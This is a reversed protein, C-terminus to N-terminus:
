SLKPTAQLTKFSINRFLFPSVLLGRRKEIEEETNVISMSRPLVAGMIYSTSM